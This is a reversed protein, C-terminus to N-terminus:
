CQARYIDKFLAELLLLVLVLSSPDCLSRKKKMKERQVPSGNEKQARTIETSPRLPRRKSIYHLMELENLHVYPIEDRFWRLDETHKEPHELVPQQMIPDGGPASPDNMYNYFYLDEWVKTTLETVLEHHMLKVHKHVFEAGCFLKYTCGEVGCGYREDGKKLVYPNLAKTEEEEIIEKAAKSAIRQQWFSDIKKEWEDGSDSTKSGDFAAEERDARVHRFGKPENTEYMGYYDVGHVRWLYTILMDLLKVGGLEWDAWARFTDEIDKEEDLKDVLSHIKKLDIQIRRQEASVPHAKPAASVTQDEPSSNTSRNSTSSTFGPGLDLTGSQMDHWLQKAIERANINRWNKDKHAEFYTRKQNSIHEARYEEYGKEAEAPLVDDELEQVFQKFSMFGLRSSLARIYRRSSFCLCMTEFEKSLCGEEQISEKRIVKEPTIISSLYSSITRCIVSRSRRVPRSSRDSVRGSRGSAGCLASKCYSSCTASGCCSATERRVVSRTPRQRLLLSEGAATARGEKAEPSRSTMEKIVVTWTCGNGSLLSRRGVANGKKEKRFSGVSPRSHRLDFPRQDDEGRGRSRARCSCSHGVSYPLNQLEYWIWAMSEFGVAGLDDEGENPAAMSGDALRRLRNAAIAAHGRAPAAKKVAIGAGRCGRRCDSGRGAIYPMSPRPPIKTWQEAIASPSITSFLSELIPLLLSWPWPKPEERRDKKTKSSSFIQLRLSIPSRCGAFAPM